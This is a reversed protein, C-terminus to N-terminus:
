ADILIRLLQPHYFGREFQRVGPPERWADFSQKGNAFNQRQIHFAARSPIEVEATGSWFDKETRIESIIKEMCNRPMRGNRNFDFVRPFSTCLPDCIMVSIEDTDAQETFPTKRCEFRVSLRDQKRSLFYRFTQEEHWRGCEVSSLEFEKQEECLIEELSQIRWDLLAPHFKFGEAESHYGLRPDGLCLEKMRKSASIQNRIIERMRKGCEPDRSLTYDRRLLYFLLIEHGASFLLGIAEALRIDRMRAPDSGAGNLFDMGRAWQDAMRGTLHEAEELSFKHLCEGIADGSPQWLIWTPALPVGAYRPYLPWIIGDHMPGYYQFLKSLPYNQYGREFHLWARVVADSHDHWDREALSKLFDTKSSDFSHFSLTGAARSMLGPYNGFYWCQMVHSVGLERMAKYKDYLLGPVPIEPVSALEHSCAVQIKAGMPVANRKAALAMRRFPEAPGAQSQWYDGGCRIKGEQEAQIGSEFNYLLIVNKPHHEALEEVWHELEPTEEPLYLWSILEAEPAADHMGQAMPKLARNLIEWPAKDGCHPCTIKGALSPHMQNVCSTFREGFSINILGALHPVESFLFNTCQYLHKQATESDPCFYHVGFGTDGGDIEPFEKLLPSDSPLGDPEISFLYIGIGYRRCKEVTKRLKAIRREADPPHFLFSRCIDKFEITLWLGNVGESALRSLYADPYYDVENTLEDVSHPPRNTPGFFCRSIRTKVWPKRRISALPLFPGDAALLSDRLGYIGRRIGETDEAALVISDKRIELHYAEFCETKQKRLYLPFLSAGPKRMVSLFDQLDDVASDLLQEPDPFESFLSIGGSLDAETKRPYIRSWKPSLHERNRLEEQFKWGSKSDPRSPLPASTMMM